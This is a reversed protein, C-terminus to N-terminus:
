PPASMALAGERDCKGKPPALRKTCIAESKYSRDTGVLKPLLDLEPSLNFEQGLSSEHDVGILIEDLECDDEFTSM